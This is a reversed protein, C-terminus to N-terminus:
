QTAEVAAPAMPCFIGHLASLLQTVRPDAIRYHLATGQRRAVVLGDERLRTLHQSLAPQSLGASDALRGVTVEGEAALRCLVLLRRDNGLQRLLSAAELVQAELAPLGAPIPTDTSTM